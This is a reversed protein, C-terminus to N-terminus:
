PRTSAARSTSDRLGLYHARVDPDLHEIEEVVCVKAFRSIYNASRAKATNCARAKRGAFRPRRSLDLKRKPQSRAAAVLADVDNALARLLANKQFPERISQWAWRGILALSLDRRRQQEDEVALPGRSMLRLFLALKLPRGITELRHTLIRAERYRFLHGFMRTGSVASKLRDVTAITDTGSVDWRDNGHRLVTLRASM